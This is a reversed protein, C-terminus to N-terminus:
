LTTGSFAARTSGPVKPGRSWDKTLRAGHLCAIIYPPLLVTADYDRVRAPVV